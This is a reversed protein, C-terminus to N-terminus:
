LLSHLYNLQIKGRLLGDGNVFHRWYNSSIIHLIAAWCSFTAFMSMFDYDLYLWRM